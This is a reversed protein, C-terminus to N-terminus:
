NTVKVISRQKDIALGNKIGLKSNLSSRLMIWGWEVPILNTNFKKSAQGDLKQDENLREFAELILGNLAEYQPAHSRPSADPTIGHVWTKTTM